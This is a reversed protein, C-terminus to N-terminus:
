WQKFNSKKTRTSQKWRRKLTQQVHMWIGRQLCEYAIVGFLIGGLHAEHAIGDNRMGQRSMMGVVSWISLSTLAYQSPLRIPLFKVLFAIQKSPHLKAYMAFLSLAVGSLGICSGNPNLQVFFVNSFIGAMICFMGLSIQNMRLVTEISKGFTLYGYLNMFLHSLTSHSVISTILTHYRGKSINYQSCVFHKHLIPMLPPFQWLVFIIISSITGYYLAPSTSHLRQFYDKVVQSLPKLEQEQNHFTTVGKNEGGFMVSHIPDGYPNFEGRTTTDTNPSYGRSKSPHDKQYYNPNLELFSSSSPFIGGPPSGGEAGGRVFISPIHPMVDIPHQNNVIEDHSHMNIGNFKDIDRWNWRSNYNSRTVDHRPSLSTITTSSSYLIDNTTMTHTTRNPSVELSISGSKRTGSVFPLLIMLIPAIM